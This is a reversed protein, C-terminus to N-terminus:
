KIADTSVNIIRQPMILPVLGAKLIIRGSQERSLFNVFGAGVKQEMSHSILNVPRDLPYSGDAIESQCATSAVIRGTSDPRSVYLVKVKRLLTRAATDHEGSIREFPIFGIGKRDKQIYSVLEGLNKAAYASPRVSAHAIQAFMYNVVGSGNGEFVLDYKTSKNALLSLVEDYPITDRDLARNAIIAVADTAFTHEEAQLNSLHLLDKKEQERLRRGVIVVASSDTFLRTLVESEPAYVVHIHKDTQEFEYIEVEQDILYRFAEDCYVTISDIHIATGADQAPPPTFYHCSSFLFLWLFLPILLWYMRVGLGEGFSLPSVATNDNLGRTM